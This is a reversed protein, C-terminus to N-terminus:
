SRRDIMRIIDAYQESGSSPGSRVAIEDGSRLDEVPLDRDRDYVVTRPDYKFIIVNREGSRLHIERRREDIRQVIGTVESRDREREVRNLGSDRRNLGSDRDDRNRNVRTEDVDPKPMLAVSECGATVGLGMVLTAAICFKSNMFVEKITKLALSTGAAM